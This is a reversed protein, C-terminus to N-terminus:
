STNHHHAGRKHDKIHVAISEAAHSNVVPIIYNANPEYALTSITYREVRTGPVITFMTFGVFLHLIYM